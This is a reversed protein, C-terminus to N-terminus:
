SGLHRDFDYAEAVDDTFGAAEDDSFEEGIDDFVAVDVEDDGIGFIGGTAGTEGGGDEFFDEAGADVDAGEAVVGEAFALDDGEEFGAGFEDSGDVEGGGGDAFAQGDDGGAGAEFDGDEVDHSAEVHVGLHVVGPAGDVGEEGLDGGIDFDFDEVEVGFDGAFFDGHAPVDVSADGDAVACVGVGGSGVEADEGGFVAGAAGGEDGVEAHAAGIVGDESSAFVADEFVEDGAHGVEEFDGGTVGPDAADDDGDVFEGAHGEGDFAEVEFTGFLGTGVVGVVFAVGGAFGSRGWLGKRLSGQWQGQRRM